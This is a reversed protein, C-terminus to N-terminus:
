EDDIHGGSRSLAIRRRQAIVDAVVSGDLMPLEWIRESLGRPYAISLILLPGPSTDMAWTTASDFRVTAGSLTGENLDTIWSLPATFSRWGDRRFVSRIAFRKTFTLRVATVGVYLKALGGRVPFALDYGARVPDLRIAAFAATSAILAMAPAPGVCVVAALWVVMESTPSLSAEAAVACAALAAVVGTIVCSAMWRHAARRSKFAYASLGGGFVVVSGAVGGWGYEGSQVALWNAATVFVALPPLQALLYLRAPHRVSPERSRGEGFSSGNGSSDSAAGHEARGQAIGALWVPLLLSGIVVVTAAVLPLAVAAIVCFVLGALLAFRKWNGPLHRNVAALWGMGAILVVGASLFYSTLPEKTLLLVATTLLVPPLLHAILYLRFAGSLAPTPVDVASLVAPVGAHGSSLDSPKVDVIRPPPDARKPVRGVVRSGAFAALWLAGLMGVLGFIVTVPILWPGAVAQGVPLVRTGGHLEVAVRGALESFTGIEVTSDELAGPPDDGNYGVFTVQAVCSRALWLVQWDRHCSAVEATGTAIAESDASHQAAVVGTAYLIWLSALLVLVATLCGLCGRPGGILTGARDDRDTQPTASAVLARGAGFVEPAMM